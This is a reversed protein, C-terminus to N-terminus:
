VSVLEEESIYINVGNVEISEDARIMLYKVGGIIRTEILDLREPTVKIVVDPTNIEFRNANIINKPHLQADFGFSEDYEVSFKAVNKEPVGSEQLALKIQEKSVLLAEPSHSEKHIAISQCLQEHITQMVDMSCEEQLSSALLAEFSKKQEAAPKPIDTCFIADVFSQHSEKPSHTYYLANYINTARNDFAPFLFGLEPAAAVNDAGGNHFAKEEAMYRLTPKALKVPCIACLLYTYTEDSADAQVEDDSSKFPVDYSDCGLLILYSDQLNVSEMVKEYFRHRVTEDQLETRRLDMLLQHEPSSAVQATRFTIDILNRGLGGSLIKRMTAFYKEAENEPMTLTSQKFKSIIEKQSNVYCGYIAKMNSRDRRIRRRIEGIERTNM